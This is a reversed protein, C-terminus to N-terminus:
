VYLKLFHDLICYHDEFYLNEMAPLDAVEFWKAEWAEDRAMVEPWGMSTGAM